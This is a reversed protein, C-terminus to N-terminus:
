TLWENVLGDTAYHMRAGLRPLEQSTALALLYLKGLNIFMEDIPQQTLIADLDAGAKQQPELVRKNKANFDLTKRPNTNGQFRLFALASAPCLSVKGIPM